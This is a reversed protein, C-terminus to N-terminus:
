YYYYYYYYYNNNNYNDDYNASLLVTLNVCNSLIIGSSVLTIILTQVVINVSAIIDDSPSLTTVNYDSDNASSPRLMITMNSGRYV